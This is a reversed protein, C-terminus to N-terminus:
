PAGAKRYFFVGDHEQCDLGTGFRMLSESVGVLLAGAPRLREALHGVVRRVMEDRFYILVNRCVVLDMEGMAEIAARDILNVRKWVIAATIQPQLALRGDVTEFYRAPVIGSPLERLSRPRYRGARAVDLAEQSIDSAFLDVSGLLERDALWMAITAPEEGTSCAACWIRPRKGAQILPVVFKSLAVQLPAFERFFYTERVVLTEMLRAFELGEPDDYRLL